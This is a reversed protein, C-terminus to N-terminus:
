RLLLRSIMKSRLVICQVAAPDQAPEKSWSGAHHVCDRSELPPHRRSRRFRAKAAVGLVCSASWGDRLMFNVLIRVRPLTAFGVEKSKRM